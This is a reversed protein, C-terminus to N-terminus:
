EDPEDRALAATSEDWLMDDLGIEALNGVRHVLGKTYWRASDAFHGHKLLAGAIVTFDLPDGCM